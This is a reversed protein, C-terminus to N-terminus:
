ERMIAPVWHCTGNQRSYVDGWDAGAKHSPQLQVRFDRVAEAEATSFQKAGVSPSWTYVAKTEADQVSFVYEDAFIRLTGRRLGGLADDAAVSIANGIAGVAILRWDPMDKQEAKLPIVLFHLKDPQQSAQENCEKLASTLWAFGGDATAASPAPPHQPRTAAYIAGVAAVVLVVLGAAVAVAAPRAPNPAGCRSCARALIPVAADCELCETSVM